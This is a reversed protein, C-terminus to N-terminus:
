DGQRQAAAETPKRVYKSLRVRIVSMPGLGQAAFLIQAPAIM